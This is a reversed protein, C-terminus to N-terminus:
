PAGTGKCERLHVLNKEEEPAHKPTHTTPTECGMSLVHKSPPTNLGDAFREGGKGAGGLPENKPGPADTRTGTNPEHELLTEENIYRRRDSRKANTVTRHQALAEGGYSPKKNRM